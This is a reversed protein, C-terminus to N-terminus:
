MTSQNYFTSILQVGAEDEFTRFELKTRFTWLGWDIRLVKGHEDLNLGFIVSANKFVKNQFQEKPINELKSKWKWLMRDPAFHLKIGTNNNLYIISNDTRDRM